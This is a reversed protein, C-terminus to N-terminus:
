RDDRKGIAGAEVFMTLAVGNWESGEPSGDAPGVLPVVGVRRPDLDFREIVYRRIPQARARALRYEDARSPATAYGEVVLASDPPYSLFTSMASDIRRRGDETLRLEGEPTSEFLLDSKLWIRLDRRGGRKLAGERYDAPSLDDLDFYGRDRFFGRFFWNRKLAETNQELNSMAERAHGVTQRLDAILSAPRGGENLNEIARRGQEVARRAETVTAEAQAMIEVTQRYLTDDKLLRGATGRGAELDAIIARTDAVIRRGSDAIAAVDAGVEQVLADAHTATDAIARLALEVDGKVDAITQNVLVITGSMQELLDAVAFPERSPLVTGSLAPPAHETGAAVALFTGGVLGETQISAVSDTRVLPQLDERVTFRVRFRGGPRVPVAIERVDGATMGAVQVTAGPQLGSVRAFETELRIKETFLMRREGILFLGVAFLALTVLVFLGVAALKTRTM